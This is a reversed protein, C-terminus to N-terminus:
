PGTGLVRMGLAPGEGHGDATLDMWLALGWWQGFRRYSRM